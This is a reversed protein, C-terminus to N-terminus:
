DGKEKTQTFQNQNWNMFNNPHHIWWSGQLVGVQIDM